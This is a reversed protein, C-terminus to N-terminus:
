IRFKLRAFFDVESEDLVDDPVNRSKLPRAMVLELDGADGFFIQVRLGADALSRTKGAQGEANEFWVDGREVFLTPIVQFQMAKRSNGALSLRAHYGSDGILVGPLYARMRDMGGLVYQEQQPVQTGDSFVGEAFAGVIFYRSLAFKVEFSPAFQIFGPSRKSPHVEMENNTPSSEEGVFSGSESGFGGNVALGYHGENLGYRGRGGYLYKLGLVAKGYQEDIIAEQQAPDVVEDYVVGLKESLVWRRGAGSALIHEATLNVVSTNADLESVITSESGLECLPLGPSLECIQPIEPQFETQTRESTYETRAAQLGYLGSAFPHDIKLVWGDFSTDTNEVAKGSLAKLYDLKYETGWKSWYRMGVGAFDRGAFRNGQNGVDFSFQFRDAEKVASRFDLTTETYDANLSYSISYDIGRRETGLDAMVRSKEFEGLTLDEDGILNDFHKQIIPHANTGVLKTQVAYVYVTSAQQRYLIQVLLNGNLRYVKSLNVILQSPTKSAEALREIQERTLYPIDLVEVYQNGIRGIYFATKHRRRLENSKSLQMLVPPMEPPLDIAM